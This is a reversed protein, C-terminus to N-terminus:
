KEEEDGEEEEDGYWNTACGSCLRRGGMLVSDSANAERHCMPCEFTEETRDEDQENRNSRM